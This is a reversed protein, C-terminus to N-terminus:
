PQLAYLRFHPDNYVLRVHDRYREVFMRLVLPGPGPADTVVVYRAKIERCYSWTQEPAGAYPYVSAPRRTYLSLVRPNESIFIDSPETQTDVYNCLEAFGPTSVGDTIPGTKFARYEWIFATLVLATFAVELAARRTTTMNGGLLEFGVMLYFFILPAVPVMYRLGEGATWFLLLGIYLGFVFETPSSLRRLRVLFGLCALLLGSATLLYRFWRLWGETARSFVISASYAYTRFNEAMQDWSVSIMRYYSADSHILLNQCIALVGFVGIIIAGLRRIRHFRLLEFGAVACPLVIGISRTAYAAYAVCGILAARWFGPQHTPVGYANGPTQVNTLVQCANASSLRPM